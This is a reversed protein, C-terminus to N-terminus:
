DCYYMYQKHTKINEIYIYSCYFHLIYKNNLVFSGHPRYECDENTHDILSVEYDFKNSFPIFNNLTFNSEKIFDSLYTDKSIEQLFSVFDTEGEEEIYDNYKTFIIGYNNLVIRPDEKYKPEVGIYQIKFNM